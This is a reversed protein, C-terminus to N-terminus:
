HLIYWCLSILLKTPVYKWFYDFTQFLVNSFLNITFSWRTGLLHVSYLINTIFHAFLFVFMYILNCFILFGFFGTTAEVARIVKAIRSHKCFLYSSIVTIHIYGFHILNGFALKIWVCITPCANPLIPFSCQFSHWLITSVLIM